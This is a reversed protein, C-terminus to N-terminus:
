GSRKTQNRLAVVMERVHRNRSRPTLIELSREASGWELIKIDVYRVGWRRMDRNSFHFLDITDTGVLASGYDEIQYVKGTQVIQFKTGLPFRSWDAAASNVPTMKLRKGVANRPGGPEHATYATTRVKKTSGIKSSRLSATKSKQACGVMFTMAVLLIFAPLKKMM